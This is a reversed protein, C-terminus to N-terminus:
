WFTTTPRVTRNDKLARCTPPVQKPHPAIAVLRTRGSGRDPCASAHDRSGSDRILWESPFLRRSHPWSFLRAFRSRAGPRHPPFPQWKEYSFRGDVNIFKPHRGYLIVGLSNMPDDTAFQYGAALVAEYVETKTLSRGDLVKLVVERLPMNNRFRGTPTRPGYYRDTVRIGLESIEQDIEQLRTLLEEREKVITARVLGFEKLSDIFKGMGRIYRLGSRM